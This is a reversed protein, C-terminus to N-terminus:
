SLSCFAVLEVLPFQERPPALVLVPPAALVPSHPAALVLSEIQLPVSQRYLGRKYPTIKRTERSMKGLTQIPNTVKLFLTPTVM